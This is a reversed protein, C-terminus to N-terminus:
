MPIKANCSRCIIETQDPKPFLMVKCHPCEMIKDSDEVSYNKYYSAWDLDKIKQIEEETVNRDTKKIRNM